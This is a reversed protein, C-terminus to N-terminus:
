LRRPPDGLTVSFERRKGQREILFRIVDGPKSGFLARRSAQFSGIAQGNIERIIDGVQMGARDAPSGRELRSLVVGNRDETGLRYALMPSLETVNIGLWYGRVGGYQIIQRAVDAATNIPIAFGIGLSGGGQTFIFTNVGIVEGRANVLPGGSNGPNIAADTQIMNKYIGGATMETNIDRNKASIVGVTVTPHSDGLLYGFPNGVAIAWEGILLDDSNGIPAPTLRDETVKLVALDYDPDEGLVKGALQRGDSLSVQISSAGQVVHSNTVIHGQDDLVFGSGYTPM